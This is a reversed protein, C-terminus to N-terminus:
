FFLRPAPPQSFFPSRPLRLSQVVSFNMPFTAFPFTPKVPDNLAPLRVMELARVHPFLPFSPARLRPQAFFVVACRARRPIGAIGPALLRHGCLPFPPFRPSLYFSFRSKSLFFIRAPLCRLCSAFRPKFFFLTAMRTLLLQVILYKSPNM